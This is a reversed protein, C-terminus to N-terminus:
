PMEDIEEEGITVRPRLKRSLLKRWAIGVRVQEEMAELPIGDKQLVHDLSNQPLKNQQEIMSKARRMDRKSVSIRSRKAEQMQLQEDILTRLIQVSIRQRVEQTDPLKTSMIVLKMRSELDYASIIEDNVIAAIRQVSQAEAGRPLFIVVLVLTFMINLLYNKALKM